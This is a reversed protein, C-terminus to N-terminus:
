DEIPSDFYNDYTYVIKKRPEDYMICFQKSKEIEKEALKCLGEIDYMVFDETLDDFAFACTNGSNLLNFDRLTEALGSKRVKYLFMEALEDDEGLTCVPNDLCGYMSTRLHNINDVVFKIWATRGITDWCEYLDCALKLNFIIEDQEIEVLM